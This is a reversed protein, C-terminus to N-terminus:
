PDLPNLLLQIYDQSMRKSHWKVRPKMKVRVADSAGLRLVGDMLSQKDLRIYLKGHEDIYRDVTSALIRRQDEEIRALTYKSWEDAQRGTLHAVYRKVDNGYHGVLVSRNFLQRDLNLVQTFASLCREEDETAHLHFSTEASMFAIRNM